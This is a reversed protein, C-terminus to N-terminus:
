EQTIGLCLIWSCAQLYIILYHDQNSYGVESTFVSHYAASGHWIAPILWGSGPDLFKFACVFECVVYMMLRVYVRM